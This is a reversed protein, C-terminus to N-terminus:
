LWRMGNAQVPPLCNACGDCPRVRDCLATRAMRERASRDAILKKYEPTDAVMFYASYWCSGALRVIDGGLDHRVIEVGNCILRVDNGRLLHTFITVSNDRCAVCGEESFDPYSFDSM